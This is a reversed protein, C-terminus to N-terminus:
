QTYEDGLQIHWEECRRVGSLCVGWLHLPVNTRIHHTPIYGSTNVTSTRETNSQVGHYISWISVDYTSAPILDQITYTTPSAPVTFKTTRLLLFQLASTKRIRIVIRYGTAGGRDPPSWQITASTNTRDSVEESMMLIPRPATFNLTFILGRYVKLCWATGSDNTPLAGCFRLEINLM